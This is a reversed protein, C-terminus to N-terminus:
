RALRMWVIPSGEQCTLWRQEGTQKVRSAEAVQDLYRHKYWINRDSSLKRCHEGHGVVASVEQCGVLGM